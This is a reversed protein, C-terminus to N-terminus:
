GKVFADWWNNLLVRDDNVGVKKLAAAGTPWAIEPNLFPSYRVEGVTGSWDFDVMSLIPENEREDMVMDGKGDVKVMINKPRLDVHVMNRAQLLDIIKELKKRTVDARDKLKGEFTDLEVWGGSGKEFPLREMVVMVLGLHLTMVSYLSPALELSHLYEHVATGYKGDHNYVFKVIVNHLREDHLRAFFSPSRSSSVEDHLPSEFTGQWNNFRLLANDPCKPVLYPERLKDTTTSEKNVGKIVGV